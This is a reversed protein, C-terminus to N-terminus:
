ATEDTGNDDTGEGNGIVVGTGSLDNAKLTRHSFRFRYDGGPVGPEVFDSARDLM